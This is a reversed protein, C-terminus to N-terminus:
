RLSLPITSDFGFTGVVVGCYQDIGNSYSILHGDFTNTLLLVCDTEGDTCRNVQHPVTNGTLCSTCDTQLVPTEQVVGIKCNAVDSNLAEQSQYYSLGELTACTTILENCVSLTFYYTEDFTPSFGFSEATVTFDGRVCDRFRYVFYNSVQCDYCDTYNSILYRGASPEDTLSTITVCEKKSLENPINSTVWVQGISPTNLNFDVSGPSNRSCNLTNIEAM